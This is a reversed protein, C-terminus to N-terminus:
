AVFILVFFRGICIKTCNNKRSIWIGSFYSGQIWQYCLIRSGQKFDIYIEPRM